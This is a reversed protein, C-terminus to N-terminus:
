LSYSNQNLLIRRCITFRNGEGPSFPHSCVRAFSIINDYYPLFYPPLVIQSVSVYLNSLSLAVHDVMTDSPHNFKGSSSNTVANGGTQSKSFNQLSLSLPFFLLYIPFPFFLLPSLILPSSLLSSTLQISSLILNPFRTSLLFIPHFLSLFTTVCSLSPLFNSSCRDILETM